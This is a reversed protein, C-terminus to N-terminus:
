RVRKRKYDLGEATARNGALLNWGVTQAGDGKLILLYRFICPFYTMETSFFFM